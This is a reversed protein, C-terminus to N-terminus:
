KPTYVSAQQLREPLKLLREKDSENLKGVPIGTWRAVVEAVHETDVVASTLTPKWIGSASDAAAAPDTATTASGADGGDGSSSSSLQPPPPFLRCREGAM